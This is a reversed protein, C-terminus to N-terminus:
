FYYRTLLVFVFWGLFVVFEGGGFVFVRGDVNSNMLSMFFAQVQQLSSVHKPRFTEEEGDDKENGDVTSAVGSSSGRKAKKEEEKLVFGNLKQAVRSKELYREIKLLNLYDVDLEHVFDNVSKMVSAQQATTNNTNTTTTSANGSAGSKGKVDVMARKLCRSFATLLMLIQKIYSINKGKLRNKYRELYM